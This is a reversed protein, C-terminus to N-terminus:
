GKGVQLEVVRPPLYETHQGEKKKESSDDKKPAGPPRNEEDSDDNFQDRNQEEEREEEKKEQAGMQKMPIDVVARITFSARNSKGESIVEFLKGAVGLYLGAKELESIRKDFTRKDVIRLTETFATKFDEPSSFPMPASELGEETTGDRYQFFERLQEDTLDPFIMRLTDDTMRNIQILQAQHPTLRDKILDLHADKWQLLYFESADAFPAHKPTLDAELYKQEIEPLFPDDFSGKPSVFYRLEKVMLEPDVEAYIASTEPQDRRIIELKQTIINVLEEELSQDPSKNENDERDRGQREPQPGSRNQPGDEDALELRLINPNIRGSIPSVQLNLEGKLVTEEMFENIADRVFISAQPPSPVPFVFPSTTLEELMHLPIRKGLEKNKEMLNRAEQYLRLKSLALNLGAEANLRAQLRDQTNFTRIRNLKTEFQFQGLVASLLAIISLVLILAVGHDEFPLNKIKALFLKM